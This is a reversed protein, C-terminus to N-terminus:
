YKGSLLDGAKPSSAKVGLKNMLQYATCVSASVVPIGLVTQLQDIVPLSPMQVCASAVLVDIGKTDIKKYIELLRQPDHRGVEINDPIELAIFDHVAIGENEIYDVVLQTLPKM